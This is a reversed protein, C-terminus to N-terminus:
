ERLLIIQLLVGLLTFLLMPAFLLHKERYQDGNQLWVVVAFFQAPLSLLSQIVITLLVPLLLDLGQSAFACLTLSVFFGKLFFLVFFLVRRRLLFSVVLLSPFLVSRLLISIVSTQALNHGPLFFAATQTKACLAGFLSGILLSTLLQFGERRHTRFCFLVHQLHAM